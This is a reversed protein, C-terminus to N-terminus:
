EELELCMHYSDSHIFKMLTGAVDYYVMLTTQIMLRRYLIVVRNYDFYLMLVYQGIYDLHCYPMYPQKRDTSLMLVQLKLVVQGVCGRSALAPTFKM